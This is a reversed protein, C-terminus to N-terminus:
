RRRLHVIMGAIPCRQEERVTERVLRAVEFGHDAALRRLYPEGHAYRLSPQLVPGDGGAGAAALEASFCFIGGAPMVRAVQAYVEDLEGVYIFVDAAVVLDFAAQNSRLHEVIDVHVLEDYLGRAAAQALMNQSLDVGILRATRPRLLPGCLGTGCGLDLARAFPAPHLEALPAALGQPARYGLTQVLHREFDGAYADFLTEVYLRPAATPVAGGGLGALCYGILEPDAGRALAQEYAERAEDMREMDRLLDGRCSWAHANTADVSLARDFSALAEVPRRLELLAQGRQVWGQAWAAHHRLAADHAAVADEHRALRLLANARHLLADANGPEQALVQDAAALAEEARGLALRTAALNVLTSVRGPVLALSRLFAAEAEEGRGAQLHALGDLFATKALEFTDPAPPTDPM